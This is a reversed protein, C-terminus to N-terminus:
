KTLTRSLEAARLLVAAMLRHDPDDLDLSSVAVMKRLRYRVTNPHVHLRRSAVTVDGFADLWAGLTDALATHHAADYSQLVPVAGEFGVHAAVLEAVHLMQVAPLLDTVHRVVTGPDSRRALVRLGREADDRSAGVQELTAVDPGVVAHFDLGLAAAARTVTDRAARVDVSGTATDCAVLYIRGRTVVPLVRHRYATFYLLLLDALRRSDGHSKEPVSLAIVRCPLHPDVELWTAAAAVDADGALLQRTLDEAFQGDPQARAHRSVLHQGVLRAANRLLSRSDPALPRAGEAVWISGLIEEGARVAVAERRSAGLEPIPQVEVVEDHQWLHDYIGLERLRTRYESPGHQDLVARHRVADADVDIRSAALLDQQPNFVLVSGGVATALTNAVSVLDPRTAAGLEPDLPSGSTSLLSRLQSTLGAWGVGPGLALLAVGVEHARARLQERVLPPQRCVVGAARRGGALDLLQEVQEPTLGVGLVLVGPGATFPESAEFFDVEDVEARGDGPVAWPALADAGVAEVLGAISISM